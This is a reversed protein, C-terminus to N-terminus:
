FYRKKLDQYRLFYPTRLGKKLNVIEYSKRAIPSKMTKEDDSFAIDCSLVSACAVIKFDNSIQKQGQRGGYTKYQEFYARALKQIQPTEQIVRRAVLRDYLPLIKPVKRLENRILRFNHILFAPDTKIRQVLELGDKDQFVKGYINTDFLVHLM